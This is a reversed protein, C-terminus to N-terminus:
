ETVNAAVKIKKQGIKLESLLKPNKSSRNLTALYIM